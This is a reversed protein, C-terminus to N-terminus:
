KCEPDYFHIPFIIIKTNTQLSIWLAFIRVDAYYHFVRNKNCKIMFPHLTSDCCPSNWPRSERCDSSRHLDNLTAACDDFEITVTLHDM